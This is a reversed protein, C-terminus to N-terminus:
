DVWRRFITKHSYASLSDSLNTVSSVTAYNTLDIGSLSETVYQKTAYNSLDVGSPIDSKLAYNSLLDNLDTINNTTHVHSTVSYSSLVSTLDTIDSAIHTHVKDAKSTDLNSSVTNITSDVYGKNSIDSVSQPAPVNIVRKSSNLDINSSVSITKTGANLHITGNGADLYIGAGSTTLYIGNNDSHSGHPVSLVLRRDNNGQKLVLDTGNGTPTEIVMSRRVTNGSENQYYEKFVDSANSLQSAKISIGNDSGNNLNFKM